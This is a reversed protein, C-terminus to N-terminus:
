GPEVVLEELSGPIQARLPGLVEAARQLITRALEPDRAYLELPEAGFLESRPIVVVAPSFGPMTLILERRRRRVVFGAASWVNELRDLSEFTERVRAARFPADPADHAILASAATYRPLGRRLQIVRPVVMVLCWVALAALEFTLSHTQVAAALPAAFVLYGVVIHPVALLYWVRWTQWRRRFGLRTVWVLMAAMAGLAVFAAVARGARRLTATSESHVYVEREWHANGADVEITYTKGVTLRSSMPVTVEVSDSWNGYTSDASKGGFHVAVNEIGLGIELARVRIAIRSGPGVDRDHIWLGYAGTSEDATLAVLERGAFFAVVGAVLVAIGVARGAVLSKM